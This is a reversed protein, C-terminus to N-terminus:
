CDGIKISYCILIKFRYYYKLRFRREKDKKLNECYKM